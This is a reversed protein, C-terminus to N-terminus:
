ASRRVHQSVHIDIVPLRPDGRYRRRAVRFLPQAPDDARFPIAQRRDDGKWAEEPTRGGLIAMPRETNYWERFMDLKKQIWATKWAFLTLRTWLKLTRFFREVRGNFQCSKVRGKVLSVRMKGLAEKFRKRFQTGHDTVLFRPLGFGRVCSRVLALTNRTTPAARYVRLALLKRSFGDLIAAVHFRLWFFEFTTLDMHWTRNRIRPRLIGHPVAQPAPDRLSAAAQPTPREPRKERLIRQVSSRSLQVGARVIAMAIRRTGFEKEPCLARIEHVLWRVAAAIRHFPAKGFFGKVEPHTQFRKIWDRITNPHLVFRRAAQEVSLGRLRIILLIEFRDQPPVHPRKLPPLAEWRRQFLAIERGRLELEWAQGDQEALSRVIPSASGAARARALMFAQMLVAAIGGL